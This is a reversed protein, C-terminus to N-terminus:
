SRGVADGEHQGLVQVDLADRRQVHELFAVAMAAFSSSFNSESMISIVPSSALSIASSTSPAALLADSRRMRVARAQRPYGCSSHALVGPFSSESGAKRPEQDSMRRAGSCRPLWPGPMRRGLPRPPGALGRGSERRGAQRPVAGQRGARDPLRLRSPQRVFGRRHQGHDESQRGSVSLRPPPNGRGAKRSWCRPRWGRTWWCWWSNRATASCSTAPVLGPARGRRVPAAGSRRRQAWVSRQHVQLPRHGAAARFVRFASAHRHRDRPRHGLPFRRNLM